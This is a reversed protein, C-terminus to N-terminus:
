DWKVGSPCCQTWKGLGVQLRDEATRFANIGGFQGKNYLPRTSVPHCTVSPWWLMRTALCPRGSGSTLSPCRDFGRGLSRAAPTGPSQTAKNGPNEFVVVHKREAPERQFCMCLPSPLTDQLKVAFFAKESLASWYRHMQLPDWHKATLYNM